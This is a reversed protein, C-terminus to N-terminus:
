PTPGPSPPLASLLATTVRDIDADTLDHYLPLMLSEDEARESELLSGPVRFPEKQYVPLRHACAIGPRTAIGRAELTTAIKRPDPVRVCLSQWNPRTWPPPTPFALHAALRERYRAVQERRRALLAPLRGLQVRGVAAQLDTMRFNRGLDQGMGGHSRGRRFGADWEASATAVMGGDGTTVLKRPHFSFCAVDGHPRGIRQFGEGLDIESGIACAADEVVPLGRQRAFGLIASLDAPLGLQHAVLIARTRPTLAALLGRPDLNLTAPEVDVFVPVAGVFRVSNATAVFSHSATIVEDGPHVGVAALALELAATGSSVVCAHRAGVFAALEAEFAAVEAGQMLWGAALPRLVAEREEDGLWPRTLPIPPDM